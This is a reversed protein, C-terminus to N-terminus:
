NLGELIDQLDKIIADFPDPEVVFIDKRGIPVRGLVNVLYTELGTEGGEVLMHRYNDRAKIGRRDYYGILLAYVKRSPTTAFRKDIDKGWDPDTARRLTKLTNWFEPNDQLTWIPEHYSEQALWKPPRGEALLRYYKVYNPALDPQFGLTYADMELKALHFTRNRILFVAKDDEAVDAFTDFTGQWEERLDDFNAHPVFTPKDLELAEALGEVELLLRERRFGIADEEYYGVYNEILDEPVDRQFAERRRRDQRYDDNGALLLARAQERKDAEDAPIFNESDPDSYSEWLDDQERWKVDLRLVPINWQASQRGAALRPDGDPLGGDDTLLGEDLAWRYTDLDDVMALSAEPSGASFEDVKRGRDVWSEAIEETADKQLAEIRRSDAVWEPSDDKLKARAFERGNEYEPDDKDPISPLFLESETNAMNDFQTDLEFTGKKLDFIPTFIEDWKDPNNRFIKVAQPQISFKEMLALLIPVTGPNKFSELDTWLVLNAEVEPFRQRYLVRAANGEPGSEFNFYPAWTDTADLYAVALENGDRVVKSRGQTKVLANVESVFNQTTFYKPETDIDLKELNGIRKRAADLPENTDLGFVKDYGEILETDIDNDVILRRALTRAADTSLTTFHDTVFMQAELKPNDLRWQIKAKDTRLDEYEEWSPRWEDRLKKIKFDRGGMYFLLTAWDKEGQSVNEIQRLIAPTLTRSFSNFGSTLKAEDDTALGAIMDAVAGPIELAPFDGSILDAM